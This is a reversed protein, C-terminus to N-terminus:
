RAWDTLWGHTATRVERPWYILRVSRPGVPIDSWHRPGARQRSIKGRRGCEREPCRCGNKFPKVLVDLRGDRRTALGVCHFGKCKLLKGILKFPTM